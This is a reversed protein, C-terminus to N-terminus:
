GSHNDEKLILEGPCIVNPCPVIGRPVAGVSRYSIEWSEQLEKATTISEEDTYEANCRDCVLKEM